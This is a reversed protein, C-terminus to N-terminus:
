KMEVPTYRPMLLHIVLLALLYCSGAVVFIPTYSGIEELVYGVYKAMLMGRRDFTAGRPSSSYLLYARHVVEVEDWRPFSALAREFRRKGVYCWPCVLDSWVEVRM